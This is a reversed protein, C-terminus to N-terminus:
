AWGQLSAVWGRRLVANDWGWALRRARCTCMVWTVKVKVKVKVHAVEASM